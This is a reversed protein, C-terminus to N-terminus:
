NRKKTKKGFLCSLERKSFVHFIKLLIYYIIASVIFSLFLAFLEGIHPTFLKGILFSLLGVIVSFIAPFLFMQMSLLSIKQSTIYVFLVGVSGLLMAINNAYVLSLIDHQINKQILIMLIMFIIEYLGLLFFITKFDNQSVLQIIFYIFISCVLIFWSGNQFIKMAIDSNDKWIGNTIQSAVSSFFMSFFCGMVFSFHLGTGICEKLYREENRKVFDLTRSCVGLILITNFCIPIMCMTLFKGFYAGYQVYLNSGEVTGQQFIIFGIFIPFFILFIILNTKLTTAYNLFIMDFFSENIRSETRQRDQKNKARGFLYIITYYIVIILESVGIAVVIGMVGYLSELDTNKLLLSVNSGYNMFLTCFVISLCFLLIQRLISGSVTPMLSGMGQFYGQFTASVARFLLAPAILKIVIYSLPIQFLHEAFWEACFFLVLGLFTGFFVQVILVNKGLLNAGEIQNNSRRGRILKGLVDPLVGEFIIAFFLFFLLAVSLYALGNEHVWIGLLIINLLGVIYTIGIIKKGQVELENM